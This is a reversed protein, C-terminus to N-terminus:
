LNRTFKSTVVMDDASLFMIIEGKVTWLSKKKPRVASTLFEVLIIYETITTYVSM